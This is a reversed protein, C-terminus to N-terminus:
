RGALASDEWQRDAWGAGSVDVVVTKGREDAYTMSGAIRLRPLSYFDGARMVQFGGQMRLDLALAPSRVALSMREGDFSWVCEHEHGAGALRLTSTDENVDFVMAAGAQRVSAEASILTLRGAYRPGLGRRTVTWSLFYRAGALDRVVATLNWWETSRDGQTAHPQWEAVASRGALSHDRIKMVRDKRDRGAEGAAPHTTTVCRPSRRSNTSRASRASRVSRARNPPPGPSLSGRIDGIHAPDLVAPGFDLDGESRLRALVGARDHDFEEDSIGLSGDHRGPPAFRTSM